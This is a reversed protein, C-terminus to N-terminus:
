QFNKIPNPLWQLMKMGMPHGKSSSKKPHSLPHLYSKVRPPIGWCLSLKLKKPMGSKLKCKRRRIRIGRQYRQGNWSFRTPLTKRPGKTSIPMKSYPNSSFLIANPSIEISQPNMSKLSVISSKLSPTVTNKWKKTIAAASTPTEPSSWTPCWIM